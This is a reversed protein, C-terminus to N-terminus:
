LYPTKKARTPPPHVPVRQHSERRSFCADDPLSARFNLVPQSGMRSHQILGAPEYNLAMHLFGVSATAKNPRSGPHFKCYTVQGGKLFVSIFKQGSDRGFLHLALTLKRCQTNVPMTSCLPSSICSM